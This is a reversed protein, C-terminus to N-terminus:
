NIKRNRLSVKEGFCIAGESLQSQSIAPSTSIREILERPLLVTVGFRHIIWETHNMTFAHVHIIVVGCGSSCMTVDWLADGIALTEALCESPASAPSHQTADMDSLAICWFMILGPSSREENIQSFVFCCCGLLRSCAWSKLKMRVCISM